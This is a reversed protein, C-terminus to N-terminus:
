FIEEDQRPRALLIYQGGFPIWTLFIEAQRIIKLSPPIFSINLKKVPQWGASIMTQRLEASAILTVDKDFPCRRVIRQTVPNYPNHETVAIYGRDSCFGLLEQLLPVWEDSEVHHLVCSVYILDFKQVPVRDRFSSLCHLSTKPDSIRRNALDISAESPDVGVIDAHPFSQRHAELSLGVGCGFDLISRVGKKKRIFNRIHLLKQEAFYSASDPSSGLSETLLKEYDASYEDFYSTM